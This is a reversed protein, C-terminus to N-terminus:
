ARHLLAEDKLGQAPLYAFLEESKPLHTGTGLKSVAV